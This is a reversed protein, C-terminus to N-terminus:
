VWKQKEHEAFTRFFRPPNGTVEEVSGNLTEQPSNKVDVEMAASMAAFDAPMGIEDVLIKTYEAESLSHHTIKKGLISTLIEAVQGYSLLEPGQIIYETKHSGWETLCHFAVSAIDDASIFPIKGEGTASVVQSENKIWTRQPDELLNEMFWTPRLAVYEVGPLSDLYAHVQGMSHDGKEINSASVLVFRQVGKSRALDVFQIMPPVMDMTPPGVLYVASIPQLGHKGIEAFPNDWTTKEYWNFHSSNYPSEQSTSSSGVLFPTKAADLLAALRSATKGRGGLVLITM